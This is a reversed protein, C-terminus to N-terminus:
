YIKRPNIPLVIGTMTPASSCSINGETGLNTVSNYVRCYADKFGYFDKIATTTHVDTRKIYFPLLDPRSQLNIQTNSNTVNGPYIMKLDFNYIFVTQNPFAKKRNPKPITMTIKYYLSNVYQIEYRIGNPANITAKNNSYDYKDPSVGMLNLGIYAGYGNLSGSPNSTDLRNNMVADRTADVLASYGTYWYYNYARDVNRKSVSLGMTTIVAIISMVLLVEILSFGRKYQM